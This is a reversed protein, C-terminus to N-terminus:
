FRYKLFNLSFQLYYHYYVSSIFLLLCMADSCEKGESGQSQGDEMGLAEEQGSLTPIEERLVQRTFVFTIM